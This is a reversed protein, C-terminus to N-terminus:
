TPEGQNRLQTLASARAEIYGDLVAAASGPSLRPQMSEAILQRVVEAVTSGKEAAQRELHVRQCDTIHVHLRATM